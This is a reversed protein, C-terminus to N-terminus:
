QRQSALYTMARNAPKFLLLATAFNGGCHLLDFPIGAIIYAVGGGFGGTTFYPISTLTGFGLGYLGSIVAWFLASANKHRSCLCVILYLVTWVYLYTVWWVHFGYILGEAVTFIYIAYLTHRRFHLTYVIILLSVLEINPLFSLAVQAVLLIAAMVGVMAVDWARLRGHHKKKHRKEEEAL